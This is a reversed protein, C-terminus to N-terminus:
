RATSMLIIIAAIIFVRIPCPKSMISNHSNTKHQKITAPTSDLVFTQIPLARNELLHGQVRTGNTRPNCQRRYTAERTIRSMSVWAGCLYVNHLFVPLNVHFM